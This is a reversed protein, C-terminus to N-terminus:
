LNFLLRTELLKVPNNYRPFRIVTDCMRCKYVEVKYAGWKQEEETLGGQM